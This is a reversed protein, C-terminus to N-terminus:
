KYKHQKFLYNYINYGCLVLLITGLIFIIIKTVNIWKTETPTFESHKEHLEM